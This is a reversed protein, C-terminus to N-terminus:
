FLESLKERLAKEIRNKAIEFFNEDIEFGIFNRNTNVCAVGTSGSGMTADLVTDGEQTYTKILYELLDVPKQSSHLKLTSAPADFYLVDKPYNTWEQVYYSKDSPRPKGLLASNTKLCASGTYQEAQYMRIAYPTSKEKKKRSNCHWENYPILGQPYYNMRRESKGAHAIEGKSFILIEEYACMPRNKANIFNTPSNKVWVWKYKFQEFNSATLEFTFKSSAFMAASACPKLIRRAEVWFKQLDIGKDWKCDTISFPLDTCIFDISNDPLKAMGALCDENFIM